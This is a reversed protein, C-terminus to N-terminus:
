PLSRPHLNDQGSSKRGNSRTGKPSPQKSSLANVSSLSSGIQMASSGSAPRRSATARPSASTDRSAGSACYPSHRTETPRLSIVTAAMGPLPTRRVTVLYAAAARQVDALERQAHEGTFTEKLQDPSFLRAMASVGLSQSGCMLESIWGQTDRVSIPSPAGLKWDRPRLRRCM